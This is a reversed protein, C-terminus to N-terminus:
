TLNDGKYPTLCHPLRYSQNSLGAVTGSHVNEDRAGASCKWLWELDKFANHTYIHIVGFM